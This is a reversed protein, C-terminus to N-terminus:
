LNIYDLIGSIVIIVGVIILLIPLATLQLLLIIFNSIKDINKM